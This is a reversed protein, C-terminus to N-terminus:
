RRASPWCGRVQHGGPRVPSSVGWGDVSARRAHDTPPTRTGRLRHPAPESPTASHVTTTTQPAAYAVDSATGSHNWACWCRSRMTVDPEIAGFNSAPSATTSRAIESSDSRLTPWIMENQGVPESSSTVWRITASRLSGSRRCSSAVPLMTGLSRRRRPAASWTTRRSWPRRWRPRRRRVRGRDAADAPDLQGHVLAPAPHQLPRSGRLSARHHEHRRQDRESRELQERHAVGSAGAAARGTARASWCPCSPRHAGGRSLAGCSARRRM